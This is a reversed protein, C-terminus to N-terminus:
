TPEKGSGMPCDKRHAFPNMPDWPKGACTCSKQGLAPGEVAPTASEKPQAGRQPAAFNVLDALDCRQCADLSGHPCPGCEGGCESLSRGCNACEYRDRLAEAEGRAEALEAELQSIRAESAGPAPMVQLGEVMDNHEAYYVAQERTCNGVLVKVVIHDRESM